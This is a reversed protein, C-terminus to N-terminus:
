FRRSAGGGSPRGGRGGYSSRHSTSHSSSSRMQQARRRAAAEDDRRRKQRRHDDEAEDILKRLRRLMDASFYAKQADSLSRYFRMARELKDRDDEDASYMGGIINEVNSEAKDAAEYNNYDSEAARHLRELEAILKCDPFFGKQATSLNTFIALAENLAKYTKHSGIPNKDCAVKIKDYAANAAAKDRAEQQAKEYEQKLRVAEGYLNEIAVRDSTVYKKVEPQASDFLLLARNFVEYNDKDAPIALVEALESDVDEAAARYESEIMEHVEENFDYEPHLRQARNFMDTMNELQKKLTSIQINAGALENNLEQIDTDRVQILRRYDTKLASIAAEHNKEKRQLQEQFSAKLSAIEEEKAKKLSEKESKGKFKQRIAVVIAACAATISGFIGFLIGNGTNKEESENTVTTNAENSNEAADSVVPAVTASQSEKQTNKSTEFWDASVQSKIENIVAAQVSILGEAFQDEVFYDMGYNDLIRGSISDTIYFQMNRGTEIRVERDGTSFLILIGMDDQGIGYQSYMSYAVQEISFKPTGSPEKLESNDVRNGNADEVVYEYGLVAKDLSEVTTIVVQIGSYEEDFDVAKAMLENKEEESFIGAFDNVYFDSTHDVVDLDYHSKVLSEEYGCATLVSMLVLALVVLIALSRVNRSTNKM